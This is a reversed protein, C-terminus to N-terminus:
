MWAAGTPPAPAPPAPPTRSRRARKRGDCHWGMSARWDAVGGDSPGHQCGPTLWRRRRRRRRRGRERRTPRRWRTPNQPPTWCSRRRPVPPQCRPAEPASAFAPATLPSSLWPSM